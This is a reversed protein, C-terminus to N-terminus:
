VCTYADILILMIQRKSCKKTQGYWTDHQVHARQMQEPFLNRQPAYLLSHTKFKVWETSTRDNAGLRRRHPRIIHRHFVSKFQSSIQKSPSYFGILSVVLEKNQKGWGEQKSTPFDNGEYWSGLRNSSNHRQAAPAALLGHGNSRPSPRQYSQPWKTLTLPPPPSCGPAHMCHFTVRFMHTANHIHMAWPGHQTSSTVTM